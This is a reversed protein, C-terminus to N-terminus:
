GSSAANGSCNPSSTFSATCPSRLGCRRASYTPAKSIRRRWASSPSPIATSISPKAWCARPARRLPPDLARPQARGGSARRTHRGGGPPIWPRTGAGCGARSFYNGSVLEIPLQEPEGKTALTAASFTSALLGSFVQNKDRFDEYNPYSVALDGPNRPDTTNFTLLRSPEHVALPRLFLANILTFIATNAGVGCALTLVAVATFGPSKLLTRFAYRLDQLM